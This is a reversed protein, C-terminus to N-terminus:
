GVRIIKKQKVEGGEGGYVTKPKAEHRGKFNQSKLVRVRRSIELNHGKLNYNHINESIACVM